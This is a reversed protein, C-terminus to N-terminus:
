QLSVLYRKLLILYAEVLKLRERQVTRDGAQMVKLANVKLRVNARYLKYYRFLHWDEAESICPYKLLYHKLFHAALDERKFFDLDLCFFALENLVDLQRFHDNFEICDFIVPTELLFINKSHLDGHGDITFGSAHRKRIRPTHEELFGAAFDVSERALEALEEGLNKRIFPVVKLIDAFDEWLLHINVETEVVDTFAHFAALKDALQEMHHFTVRDETLLRNMQRSNDMRRMKLAYDIITGEQGGLRISEGYQRITILDLYMDDTLRRNLELERQGYFKRKSLTSFDLFSYKLPKKIKYAYQSGLLVWSIHTEVLEPKTESFSQEILKLIQEKTM